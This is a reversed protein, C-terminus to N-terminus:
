LGYDYTARLDWSKSFSKDNDAYDVDTPLGAAYTTKRIQWRSASESTGPLAEGIYIPETGGDYDIRRQYTAM